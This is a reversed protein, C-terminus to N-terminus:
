NSPVLLSFFFSSSLLYLLFFVFRAGLLFNRQTERSRFIFGRGKYRKAGLLELKNLLRWPRLPSSGTTYYDSSHQPIIEGM